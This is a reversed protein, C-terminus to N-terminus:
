FFLTAVLRSLLACLISAQICVCSISFVLTRKATELMQLDISRETCEQFGGASSALILECMQSGTLHAFWFSVVFFCFVPEDLVAYAARHSKSL